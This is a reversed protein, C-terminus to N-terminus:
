YRYKYPVTHPFAQDCPMMFPGQARSCCTFAVVCAVISLMQFGPCVSDFRFQILTSVCACCSCLPQLMILMSCTGHQTDFGLLSMVEVVLCAFNQEAITGPNHDSSGQRSKPHGPPYPQVWSGSCHGERSSASSGAAGEAKGIGSGGQGIGACVCERVSM